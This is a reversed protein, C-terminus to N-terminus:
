QGILIEVENSVALSPFASYGHVRFKGPASFKVTRETM